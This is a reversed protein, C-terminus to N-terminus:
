YDEDDGIPEIDLGELVELANAGGVWEYGSLFVDELGFYLEVARFFECGANYDEYYENWLTIWKGGYARGFEPMVRVVFDEVSRGDLIEIDKVLSRISDILEEYDYVHIEISTGM